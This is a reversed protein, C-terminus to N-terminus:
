RAEERLEAIRGEYHDLVADHDPALAERQALWRDQEQRLARPNPSRQMARNFVNNLRRDAEALDPEGCVMRESRSRALRCNFAPGQLAPAGRGPPARSAAEDAAAQKRLLERLARDVESPPMPNVVTSPEPREAPKQAPAKAAPAPAPALKAPSRETRLPAKPRSPPAKPLAAAKTPPARVPKAKVSPAKTKIPPAKTKVAAPKPKPSPAAAKVPPPKPRPATKPEVQPRESVPPVEEPISVVEVAPPPPAALVPPAPDIVPLSALDPAPPPIEIALAGRPLPEAPVPAPAAALTTRLSNADLNRTWALVGLSGLVVFALGAALWPMSRRRVPRAALLPSIPGLADEERASWDYPPPDPEVAPSPKLPYVRNGFATPEPTELFPGIPDVGDADLVDDDAPPPM